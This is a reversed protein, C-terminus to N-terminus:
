ANVQLVVLLLGATQSYLVRSPHYRGVWQAHKSTLPQTLQMDMYLQIDLHPKNGM